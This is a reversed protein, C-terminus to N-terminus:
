WAVVEYQTISYAAVVEVALPLQVALSDVPDRAGLEDVSPGVVSGLGECSVPRYQLIKNHLYSVYVHFM